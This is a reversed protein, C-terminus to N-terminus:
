IENLIKGSGGIRIAMEDAMQFEDPLDDDLLKPYAKQSSYFKLMKLLNKYLKGEFVSFVDEVFKQFEELEIEKQFKDYKETFCDGQEKYFKAFSNQGIFRFFGYSRENVGAANFLRSSECFTQNRIKFYDDTSKSKNKISAISDSNEDLFGDIKAMVLVARLPFQAYRIAEDYSYDAEKELTKYIYAAAYSVLSLLLLRSDSIAHFFVSNNQNFKIIKEFLEKVDLLIQLCFDISLLNSKDQEKMEIFFAISSELLKIEGFTYLNNEEIKENSEKKILDKISGIEESEEAGPIVKPPSTPVSNEKLADKLGDNLQNFVQFLEDANPISFSYVQRNNLILKKNICKIEKCSLLNYFEPDCFAQRVVLYGEETFVVGDKCSGLITDDIMFIIGGHKKNIRFSYIVNEQRKKDLDDLEYIRYFETM